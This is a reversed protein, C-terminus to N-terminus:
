ERPAAPVRRVGRRPRTGATEFRFGEARLEEYAQAVLHDVVLGQDVMERRKEKILTADLKRTRAM